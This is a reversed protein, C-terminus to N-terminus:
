SPEIRGLHRSVTWFAGIWGLLIGTVVVAALAEWSIGQLRAASDYLGALRQAPANLIAVGAQVLLCAVAAGALGYWLGSYLFPRRIFSNGAGILKLVLIEERRSEIDLRVTNGIVVLVTLALLGAVMLVAQKVIDVIAYLRELWQHDLKAQEVEPLAALEKMLADIVAKPAHGDPTVVIVAPLPNDKLADLADSFGSYRRFEELAKDRSIYRADSIGPRRALSQTLASGRDADISDRLFLSARLTGQLGGSLSDLNRLLTHLGAPLALTIGIVFATLLMGIPRRRIALLTSAIARAHDQLLRSLWSPRKAVRGAAGRSPLPKPTSM